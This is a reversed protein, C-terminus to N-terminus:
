NCWTIGFVAFSNITGIGAASSVDISFGTGSALDEASIGADFVYSGNTGVLVALVSSGADGVSNTIAANAGSALLVSGALISLQKKIM